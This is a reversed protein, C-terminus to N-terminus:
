PAPAEPVEGRLRAYLSLLRRVLQASREPDFSAVLAEPEDGPAELAAGPEPELGDPAFELAEPEAAAEPELVPPAELEPEPAQMPQPLAPAFEQFAPADALDVTHVRAPVRTELAGSGERERAQWLVAGFAGLIGLLLALRLM